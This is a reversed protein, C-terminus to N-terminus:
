SFWDLMGSNSARMDDLEEKSKVDSLRENIEMIEMLFEKEDM